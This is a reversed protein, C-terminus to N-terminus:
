AAKRAAPSPRPVRGPLRVRGDLGRLIEAVDMLSCLALTNVARFHKQYWPYRKM